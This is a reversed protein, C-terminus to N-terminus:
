GSWKSAGFRYGVSRVTEILHAHEEGLKARLRRVHVDVTRAGGFYEYGWVESLLVERSFVRGPNRVFYKLLEYEMYTLDLPSGGFTAQYTELNLRLGAHEVVSSSPATLENYFMHRLRAELERPHFPSLLFDDFLNERIELDGIQAGTVLVLIRRVPRDLKRLARCMAWGGEPDDECCVVAGMWGDVPQLRNVLEATAVGKWPYGSLDLTRAIDVSPSDPYIALMGSASM